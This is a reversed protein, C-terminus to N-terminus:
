RVDSGPYRTQQSLKTGVMAGLIGVVAVGLLKAPVLGAMFIFGVAPGTMAAFVGAISGITVGPGTSSFMAEAILAITVGVYIPRSCSGAVSAPPSRGATAVLKAILIACLAALGYPPTHQLMLVSGKNGSFETSEGGVLYALGVVTGFAAGALPWALRADMRKATKHMVTISQKLLWGLCAAVFGLAAAVVYDVGSFSTTTPITGFGATNRDLLWLMGFSAAGALLVVLASFPTLEKSRLLMVLPLAVLVYSGLFAVLLAGISAVELLKAAPGLKARSALWLGLGSSIAVLSAEPGLSAGAWLSCLGIVVIIGIM